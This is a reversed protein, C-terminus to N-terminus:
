LDSSVFVSTGKVDEEVGTLPKMETIERKSIFDEKATQALITESAKACASLKLNLGPKSFVVIRRSSSLETERVSLLSPRDRNLWM